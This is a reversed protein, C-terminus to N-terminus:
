NTNDLFCIDYIIFIYRHVLLYSTYTYPHQKPLPALHKLRWGYMTATNRQMILKPVERSASYIIRGQSCVFKYM